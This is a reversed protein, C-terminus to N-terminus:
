LSYLTVTKDGRLGNSFGAPQATLRQQAAETKRMSRRHSHFM